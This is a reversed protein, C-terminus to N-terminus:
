AEASVASAAAVQPVPTALRKQIKAVIYTEYGLAVAYASTAGCVALLYYFGSNQMKELQGAYAREAAANASASKYRSAMISARMNDLTSNEQAAHFLLFISGVLCASGFIRMIIWVLLGSVAKQERWDYTPRTDAAQSLEKVARYSTFWSIIPILFTVVVGSTSYTLGSIRRQELVSRVSAHWLLALGRSALLLVAIVILIAIGVRMALAKDSPPPQFVFFGLGLCGAAACLLAIRTATALAATTGINTLRAPGTSRVALAPPNEAHSSYREAPAVVFQPVRATDNSAEADNKLASDTPIPPTLRDWIQEAPFWLVGDESVQHSPLLKRKAIAERLQAITFPGFVKDRGRIYLPTAM